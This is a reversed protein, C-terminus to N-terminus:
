KASWLQIEAAYSLDLTEGPERWAVEIRYRAPEAAVYQVDAPLTGTGPVPLLEGVIRLWRALDDEALEMFSCAAGASSPEAACAHEGPAGGYGALRYGSLAGANARIRDAMDGVLFVAQTHWLASRADRLCQLFTGAIGLLGFALVATAVLVEILGLGRQRPRGRM